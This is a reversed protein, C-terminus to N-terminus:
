RVSEIYNANNITHDIAESVNELKHVVIDTLSQNTYADEHFTLRTHYEDYRLM